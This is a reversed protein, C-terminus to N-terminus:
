ETYSPESVLPLSIAAVCCTKDFLADGGLGLVPLAEWGDTTGRRDPDM